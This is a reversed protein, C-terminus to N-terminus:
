SIHPKNEIIINLSALISKESNGINNLYVYIFDKMRYKPNKPETNLGVLMEPYKDAIDILQKYTIKLRYKWGAEKWQISNTNDTKKVPIFNVIDYNDSNAWYDDPAPIFDPRIVLQGDKIIYKNFQINSVLDSPLGEIDLTAGTIPIYYISEIIGQKDAFIHIM